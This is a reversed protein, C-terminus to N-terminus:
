RAVLARLRRVAVTLMALDVSAAAGIERLVGEVADIERGRRAAWAALPDEGEEALVEAALASQLAYLEDVLAAAAM